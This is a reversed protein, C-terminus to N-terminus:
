MKIAQNKSEQNQNREQDDQNVKNIPSKRKIKHLSEMNGRKFNPHIYIVHKQSNRIKEFGYM